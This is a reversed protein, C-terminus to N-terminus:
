PTTVEDLLLIDANQLIARCLALKMKWGGSLGSIASHICAPQPRAPSLILLRVRM